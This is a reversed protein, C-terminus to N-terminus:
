MKKDFKCKYKCSIHKTLTKSGHKPSIVNLNLDETYNLVHVMNSLDNATNCSEPCRNLKVASPHYHFEHTYENPHLNIITSQIDCKLNSLSLCKTQKSSNVISCVNVFNKPSVRTKM